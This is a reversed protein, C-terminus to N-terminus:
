SLDKQLISLGIFSLLLVVSQSLLVYTKFSNYKSHRREEEVKLGNIYNLYSRHTYDTIVADYLRFGQVVILMYADNRHGFNDVYSNGWLDYDKDIYVPSLFEFPKIGEYGHESYLQLTDKVNVVQDTDIDSPLFQWFINGQSNNLLDEIANDALFTNAHVERETQWDRTESGALISCDLSKDTLIFSFQDRLPIGDKDVESNVNHVAIFMDNSDSDVNLYEGEISRNLEEMFSSTPDLTLLENIDYSNDIIEQKVKEANIEARKYNEELISKLYKQELETLYEMREEHEIKEADIEWSTSYILFSLSILIFFILFAVYKSEKGKISM